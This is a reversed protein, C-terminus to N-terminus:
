SLARGGPLEAKLTRILADSFFSRSDHAQSSPKFLCAPGISKARREAPYQTLNLLVSVRTSPPKVGEESPPEIGGVEM